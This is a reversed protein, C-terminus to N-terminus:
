IYQGTTPVLEKCFLTEKDLQGMNIRLIHPLRVTDLDEVVDADLLEQLLDVAACVIDLNAHQLLDLLLPASAHAMLQAYLEPEGALAVLKRVIEDVELESELFREPADAYKIRLETNRKVRRELGAVVRRIGRDDINELDALDEALAEVEQAAAYM